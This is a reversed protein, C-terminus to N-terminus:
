SFSATVSNEGTVSYNYFSYMQPFCKEFMSQRHEAIYEQIKVNRESM